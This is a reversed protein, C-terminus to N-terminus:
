LFMHGRYLELILFFSLALFILAGWIAILYWIAKVTGNQTFAKYFLYLGYIVCFPYILLPISTFARNFWVAVCIVYAIFPTALLPLASFIAFAFLGIPCNYEKKLEKYYPYAIIPFGIVWLLSSAFFFIILEMRLTVFLKRPILSIGRLRKRPLCPEKM